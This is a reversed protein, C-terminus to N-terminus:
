ETAAPIPGFQGLVGYAQAKLNDADDIIRLLLKQQGPVDDTEWRRYAEDITEAITRTARKMTAYTAM